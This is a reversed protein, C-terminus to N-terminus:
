SHKSRKVFYLGYGLVLYGIFIAIAYGLFGTWGIQDINLFFYPYPSEAQDPIPIRFIYGKILAFVMYLLPLLTWLLPDLKHYAGPRDFLCWDITFFIPVLYHLTYNKWHYFDEPAAIPALMIAYVLFTLLISMTVGAKLRLFASSNLVSWKGKFMLVLIWSLFGAVLVNSLLTYYTLNYFTDPLLQLALGYLAFALTVFRWLTMLIQKQTM